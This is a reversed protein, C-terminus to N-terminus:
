KQYRARYAKPTIGLRLRFQRTFASQDFFGHDSAIDSITGDTELLAAAAAQIRNRLIFERATIGMSQHFHRNLTRVSVGSKRAVESVRLPGARRQRVLEIAHGLNPNKYHIVDSSLHPTSIGLIAVIRGHRGHLPFKSTRFWGLAGTHDYLIEAQDIVPQDSELVQRDTAAFRDALHPPYRDYDTSGLIESEEKMKLRDLLARNVRLFRGQRNKVFLCIGPLHDFVRLVEHIDVQLLSNKPEPGPEAPMKQRTKAM